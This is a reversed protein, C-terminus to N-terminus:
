AVAPVADSLRALDPLVLTTEGVDVVTRTCRRDLPFDRTTPAHSIPLRVMQIDSAALVGFLDRSSGRRCVILRAPDTTHRQDTMLRAPLDVIVLPRGRWTSLGRVHPPALPIPTIDPVFTVEVVQAASLAYALPHAESRTTEASFVVLHGMAARRAMRNRARSAPTTEEPKPAAIPDPAHAVGGTFPRVDLVLYWADDIRAMAEFHRGPDGGALPTLPIREVTDLPQSVKEVGLVVRGAPTQLQLTREFANPTSLGLRPALDLVESTERGVRGTGAVHRMDVAVTYGAITVLVVSGLGHHSPTM